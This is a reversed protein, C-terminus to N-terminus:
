KGSKFKGLKEKIFARKIYALVCLAATLATVAALVYKLVSPKVIIFTSDCPADFVVYSGDTEYEREKYEGDEIVFVKFNDAADECLVRYKVDGAIKTDYIKASYGLVTKCGGISDEYESIKLQAAATFKGEALVRAKREGSGITTTYKSYLAYVKVYNKVSSLDIDEWEGYGAGTDPIDPIVGVSGGYDVYVAATEEGDAIFSVRMKGFMDPIGDRSMLEDYTVTRAGDIDVGDIGALTSSLYVNDLASGGIYAGVAGCSDPLGDEGNDIDAIAASGSVNNGSGVIGGVYADGRLTTVAYCSVIDGASRGAIGGVYGGELSSIYERNASNLVTGFYGRGLIGGAYDSKSDVSGSNTCYAIVAKVSTVSDNIVKSAASTGDDDKQNNIYTIIDENENEDEEDFDASQAASGCIGGVRTRGEVSAKNECGAIVGGGSLNSYDNVYGRESERTLDSIRDAVEDAGDMVKDFDDDFQEKMSKVENRTNDAGRRLDDASDGLDDILEKSEANTESLFDTLSSLLNDLSGSVIKLRDSANDTFSKIDDGLKEAASDMHDAAAEAEDSFADSYDTIKDAIPELDGRLASIEDTLGAATDGLNDVSQKLNVDKDEYEDYIDAFKNLKESMTDGGLLIDKCDSAVDYMEELDIVIIEAYETIDELEDWVLSLNSMLGRINSKVASQAAGINDSATDLYELLEATKVAAAAAKAYIAAMEEEEAVIAEIVEEIDEQSFSGGQVLALLRSVASLESEDMDALLASLDGIIETVDERTADFTGFIDEVARTVQVINKSITGSYDEINEIKRKIKKLSYEISNGNYDDFVKAMERAKESASTGGNLIEDIDEALEIINDIDDSVADLDSEMVDVTYEINDFRTDLVDRMDGSMIDGIEEINDLAARMEDVSAGIDDMDAELDDSFTDFEDILADTQEKLVANESEIIDLVADADGSFDDSFVEISSQIKELSGGIDDLYKDLNNNSLNDGLADVSGRTKDLSKGVADAKDGYVATIEPILRGVIGGVDDKGLIPANNTCESINGSQVGAIGGTKNGVYVYGIEGFNHSSKIVDNNQGAIGGTIEFVASGTARLSDLNINILSSNDKKGASRNNVAGYNYCGSITGDNTGAIGGTKLDGTVTSYNVCGSVAGTNRGTIGGTNEKAEVTGRAACNSIVGTNKGAIIGVNKKTDEPLLTAEVTLNKVTGSNERIFGIGSGKQKISVGSITYDRGDFTGSFYPISTFSSGRMDIDDTLYVTLDASYKEDKCKAALEKLDEATKIYCIDSAAAAECLPLCEFTLLLAAFLTFIKKCISNM